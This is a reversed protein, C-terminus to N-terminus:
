SASTRRRLVMGGMALALLSLTVPEPVVTLVLQPAGAALTYERTAIRANGTGTGWFSLGNNTLAGSAWDNLVSVGTATFALSPLAASQAPLGLASKTWTQSIM